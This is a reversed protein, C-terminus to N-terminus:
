QSQTKRPAALSARMVIETDIEISPPRAGTTHLLILLKAASKGMRIQPVRVTTLPPTVAMALTDRRTHTFQILTM